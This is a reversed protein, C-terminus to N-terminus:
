KSCAFGGVGVVQGKRRRTQGERQGEWHTGLRKQWRGGKTGAEKEMRDQKGVAKTHERWRGMAEVVEAEQQGQM